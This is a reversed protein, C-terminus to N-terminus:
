PRGNIPFLDKLDIGVREDGISEAQSEGSRSVPSFCEASVNESTAHCQQAFEDIVASPSDNELLAREAWRM